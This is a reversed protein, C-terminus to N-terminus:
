LEAHIRGIPRHHFHHRDVNQRAGDGRQCQTRFRIQQYRIKGVRDRQALIREISPRRVATQLRFRNRHGVPLLTQGRDSFVVTQRCYFVEVGAIDRSHHRRNVLGGRKGGQGFL